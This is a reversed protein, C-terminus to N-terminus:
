TAKLKVFNSKETKKESFTDTILNIKM